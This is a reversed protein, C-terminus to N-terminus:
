QAYVVLNFVLTGATLTGTCSSGLSYTAQRSSMTGAATNSNFTASGNGDFAVSGVQQQVTGFTGNTVQRSNLAKAYFLRISRLTIALGAASPQNLSCRAV